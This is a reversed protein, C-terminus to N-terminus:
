PVKLKLTRKTNKSRLVKAKEGWEDSQDVKVKRLLLMFKDQIFYILYLLYPSFGDLM